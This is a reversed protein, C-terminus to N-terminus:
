LYFTIFSFNTSLTCKYLTCIINYGAFCKYCGLRTQPMLNKSWAIHWAIMIMARLLAGESFFQFSTPLLSTSSIFVRPMAHSSFRTGCSREPFSGREFAAINFWDWTFSRSILRCHCSPIRSIERIIGHSQNLTAATWRRKHTGFVTLTVSVILSNGKIVNIVNSGM